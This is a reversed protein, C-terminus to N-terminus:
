FKQRQGKSNNDPNKPRAIIILDDMAWLKNTHEDDIRYGLSHSVRTAVNKSTSGQVVRKHIVTEVKEKKKM